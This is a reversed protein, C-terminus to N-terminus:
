CLWDGSAHHESINVISVEHGQALKFIGDSDKCFSINKM